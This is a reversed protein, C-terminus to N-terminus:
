PETELAVSTVLWRDERWVIAATLTGQVVGGVSYDSSLAASTKGIRWQATGLRPSGARRLDRRLGDTRDLITPNDWIPPPTRNESALYRLLLQGVQRAQQIRAFAVDGEVGLEPVARAQGRRGFAQRLRGFLSDQSSAPAAEIPPAPVAANVIEPRASSEQQPAAGERGQPALNRGSPATSAAVAPAAFPLGPAAKDRGPKAEVIRPAGTAGPPRVTPSATAASLAPVPVPAPREPVVSAAVAPSPESHPVPEQRGVASAPPPASLRAANAEGTAHRETPREVTSAVAPLEPVPLSRDAGSAAAATLAWPEPTRESERVVLGGLLLCAGLLGFVLLRHRRRGMTPAAAPPQWLGGPTAAMGEAEPVGPAATRTLAREADYAARRESSRLHNWATNIRAAFVSDDGSQERDPHLWAQLLRHHAKIEAVTADAAVGLTRYADAEAHFLVERAYFRAAERLTGASERLRVAATESEEPAVNAAVALLEGVGPPLPRQRLRYREAPAHLLALAWELATGNAGDM